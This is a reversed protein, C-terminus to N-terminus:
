RAPWRGAPRSGAKVAALLAQHYRFYWGFFRGGGEETVRLGEAALEAAEDWQGRHFDDVCLDMLAVLHRGARAARAAKLVPRWLPERVEALRDAYM